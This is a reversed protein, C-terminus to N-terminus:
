VLPRIIATRRESWYISHVPDAVREVTQGRLNQQLVTDIGVTKPASKPCIAGPANVIEFPWRRVVKADTEVQVVQTM